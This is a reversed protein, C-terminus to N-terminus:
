NITYNNNKDKLDFNMSLSFINMSIYYDTLIKKYNHFKNNIFNLFLLCKSKKIKHNSYKNFNFDIYDGNELNYIKGIKIKPFKKTETIKNLQSYNLQIISNRKILYKNNKLYCKNYNQIIFGENLNFLTFIMLLAFFKM